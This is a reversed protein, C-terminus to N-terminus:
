FRLGPLDPLEKEMALARSEWTSFELIRNFRSGYRSFFASASKCVSCSDALHTKSLEVNAWTPTDIIANTCHLSWELFQARCGSCQSLSDADFKKRNSRLQQLHWDVRKKRLSFLHRTLSGSISVDEVYLDEVPGSILLRMMRRTIDDLGLYEALYLILLPHEQAFALSLRPAAYNGPEVMYGYPIKFIERKFWEIISSIQYKDAAKLLDSITDEDIDPTPQAPDIHCLLVNLTTSDEEMELPKDNNVASSTTSHTSINFMDKFFPSVHALITRPFYFLMDDSSQMAFYGYTQPFTESEKLKSTAMNEPMDNTDIDDVENDWWRFESPEPTVKFQAAMAYM